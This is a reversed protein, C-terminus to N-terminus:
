QDNLIFKRRNKLSVTLKDIRLWTCSDYQYGVECAAEYAVGRYISPTAKKNPLECNNSDYDPKNQMM